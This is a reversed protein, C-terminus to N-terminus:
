IITKTTNFLPETSGFNLALDFGRNFYLAQYNVSLHNTLVTSISENFNFSSQGPTTVSVVKDVGMLVGMETFFAYTESGKMIRAANKLEEVDEATFSIDVTCSSRVYRGDVVNVGQNTLDSPTPNLNDLTPVFDSTEVIVGNEIRFQTMKVVAESKDFRRAFYAIYPKNDLGTIITRLAYRSRQSAALDQSPDRVVLPMLAFPALNTARQQRPVQLHTGDPGIENRHGGNGICFANFAMRDSPLPLVDPSINLKENLTTFEVPRYPLNLNLHNQVYGSMITRTITEIAM